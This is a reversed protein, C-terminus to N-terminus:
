EYIYREVTVYYPEKLILNLGPTTINIKKSLEIMVFEDSNEYNVNIKNKFIFNNIDTQKNEQYLDVIYDLDNELRYKQHLINGFDVMGLAIFLFIPIIMVFEILAQGKNNM